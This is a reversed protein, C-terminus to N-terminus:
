LRGDSMSPSVRSTTPAPLEAQSMATSPARLPISLWMEIRRPVCKKGFVKKPIGASWNSRQHIGTNAWFCTSFSRSASV